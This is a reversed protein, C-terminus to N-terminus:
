RGDKCTKDPMGVGHGRIATIHLNLLDVRIDDGERPEERFLLRLVGFSCSVERPNSGGGEFGGPFNSISKSSQEAMSELEGELRYGVVDTPGREDVEGAQRPGAVGRSIVLLLKIDDAVVEEYSCHPGRPLTGHEDRFLFLFGDEEWLVLASPIGDCAIGDVPGGIQVGAHGNTRDESDM